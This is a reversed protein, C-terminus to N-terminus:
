DFRRDDDSETIAEFGIYARSGPDTTLHKRVDQASIRVRGHFHGNPRSENLTSHQDGLRITIRKGRENDVLFEAVRSRLVAKEESDADDLGLRACFAVLAASKWEREFIWGHIELEWAEGDGIPYGYTPFFVVSEDSKIESPPAARPDDLLGLGATLILLLVVLLRM